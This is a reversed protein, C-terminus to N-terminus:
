SAHKSTCDWERVWEPFSWKCVIAQVQKAFEQSAYQPDTNSRVVDPIGHLSFISKLAAIVATSTTTCLKIVELYCSIYTTSEMWRLCTPGLWKPLWTSPYHGFALQKPVCQASSSWKSSRNWSEQTAVLSIVNNAHPMVREICQLAAIQRSNHEKQSAGFILVDDIQCIVGDLGLLIGSM